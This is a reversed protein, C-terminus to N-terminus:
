PAAARSIGSVVSPVSIYRVGVICNRQPTSTLPSSMGTERQIPNPRTHIAEPDEGDVQDAGGTGTGVALELGDRLGLAASGSEGFGM